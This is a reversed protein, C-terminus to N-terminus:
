CSFRFFYCFCFCVLSVVLAPVSDCFHRDYPSNAASFPLPLIPFFACPILLMIPLYLISLPLNLIAYSISFGFFKYTCGMSMFQAPTSHQHPTPTCTLPSYLPSFFPVVTITYDIFYVKYILYFFLFLKRLILFYFLFYFHALLFMMNQSNGQNEARKCVVKEMTTSGKRLGKRQSVECLQLAVQKDRGEGWRGDGSAGQAETEVAKLEVLEGYM